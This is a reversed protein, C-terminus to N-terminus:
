KISSALEIGKSLDHKAECSCGQKEQPAHKKSNKMFSSMKLKTILECAKCVSASSLEGCQTCEQLAEQKVHSILIPQIEQLTNMLAYKSGPLSAEIEDIATRFVNRKVGSSFPCCLEGYFPIKKLLAYVEVEKEPTFYLPKIRPIFKENKELGNIIGTRALRPINNAFVNMLVSQAEDDLNHGTALKDAKMERAHKNLLTRRFVGCYSCSKQALGKEQKIQMIETMSYDFSDKYKVIIHDIDLEKYLAKAQDISKDRYGPIGEDISIGKLTIHKGAFKDLLSLTVASDKGGSVGVAITEGFRALKNKNITKKVRKEFFQIFHEECFHHPGYPLTIIKAKM